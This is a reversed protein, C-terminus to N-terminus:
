WSKPVTFNARSFELRDVLKVAKGSFNDIAVYGEPHTVRYGDPTEIFTGLRSVLQLKRM